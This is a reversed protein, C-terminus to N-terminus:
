HFVTQHSESAHWDHDTSNLSCDSQTDYSIKAEVWFNKECHGCEFEIKNDFEVSYDDDHVDEDCYPCKITLESIHYNLNM